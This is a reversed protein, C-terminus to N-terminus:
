AFLRLNAPPPFITGHLHASAYRIAGVLDLDGVPKAIV